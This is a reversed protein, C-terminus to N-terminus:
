KVFQFDFLITEVDKLEKGKLQGSLKNMKDFTKLYVGIGQKWSDSPTTTYKLTSKAAAEKSIGIWDATIDAASKVNHNCWDANQTMLKSLAKLEKPYSAIVKNSAAVVCCPTDKWKGQPPLDSLETVVQGIGETLAVEPYPSPGVWGFVQKSTLAPIFNTTEKLDVLLVDSSSDNADQTIKLGADYLAAEFVMKPASTPSHYGIVVPKTAAKAYKLFADWSKVESDKPVVFSMGETQIPSLIKIPSGSDVATMVATVSALGVDIHGQAFLTATEAGSKSTIVNLKCVKAGDSYLEYKEKPVVEKLYTGQDKLKGGQHMAVIFPTQHNTFIYSINLTPVEKTQDGPTSASKNGCGSLAMVFVLLLVLLVSLYGKKKM